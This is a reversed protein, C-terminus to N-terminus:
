RAEITLAWSKLSGTGGAQKDTVRLTWVGGAPLGNFADVFFTMYLNAGADDQRLLQVASGDPHVLEVKLQSIEPHEIEVDVQAHVIDGKTDATITSEIGFPNADPIDAYGSADGEWVWSEGAPPCPGGCDGGVGPVILEPQVPVRPTMLGDDDISVGTDPFDEASLRRILRIAKRGSDSVPRGGDVLKVPLIAGQIFRGQADLDADLLLSVSKNGSLSFLKYGVFNGLSYAILRDKYVEMARPVHPGHGLVVDAGADVVAHTFKRLNGRNEGFFTEAGYPVHLAPEGEAGGHFSVFVLDHDADAAKVMAIANDTDLLWNSHNATHFAILAIRLGRRELTAVKGPEGSHAVGAADLTVITEARCVEGFDLAHNNAISVVDIGAEAVHRGYDTPTRFAYCNAGRGACKNAGSTDCLPGELNVFTLDAADLWSWVGHFTAVGGDAPLASKPYASGMMVDGGARIRLLGTEAGDSKGEEAWGLRAGSETFPAVTDGDACGHQWFVTLAM